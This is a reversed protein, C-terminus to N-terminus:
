FYYSYSLLYEEDNKKDYSFILASNTSLPKNIFVNLINHYQKEKRYSYKAGIKIDQNIYIVGNELQLARQDKGISVIPSIMAYYKLNNNINYSKGIGLKLNYHRKSNELFKSSYDVQVEWSIKPFLKTSNAYSKIDLINFRKIYQNEENLVYDIAFYNIYGNDLTTEFDKINHYASSYSLMLSNKKNAKLASIKINKARHNDLINDRKIIISNKITAEKARMRLLKMYQSIYKKKQINKKLYNYRVYRIKTDLLSSKNKINKINKQFIDTFNNDLLIDKEFDSLTNDYVFNIEDHMSPRFNNFTILNQKKLLRLTEVPTVEVAFKDTLSLKNKSVQILWLIQYSCNKNIFLYPKPTDYIEYLHLLVNEVEDQNLNLKYEYLDRQESGAYEEIKKSYRIIDFTGDYGGFLGKFMYILVNDDQEPRAGYNVSYSEVDSVKNDIKLFTHGVQSAPSNIFASSYVVSISNTNLTDMFKDRKACSPMDIYQSLNLEKDLFKFRAGYKCIASENSDLTKNNLFSNLSYELEKQADNNTKSLFFFKQKIESTNSDNNMHLLKRWYITDSINKEKATQLVKQFVVDKDNAFLLSAIFVM